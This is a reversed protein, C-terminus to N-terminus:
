VHSKWEWQFLFLFCLNLSTRVAGASASGACSASAALSHRQVEQARMNKKENEGVMEAGEKRVQV